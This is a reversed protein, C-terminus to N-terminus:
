ALAARGRVGGFYKQIWPHSHHIIEDREGVIAKKDVIVAFRDCITLLSDMDHSIMVVTLNLHERLYLILEDFEAASIPDLGATPEDLFIIKPEVALARALAARKIMGGSLESPYKNFATESLGVMRLKLRAIEEILENSAQAQERIPAMANELVTLGSFLAGTQFLVGWRMQCFSDECSIDQDFLTVQGSTPQRLGLMCNLLVSKGTGSGGVIGLIEHQYVSLNIGDHVLHHGFRNVLHNIRIIEKKSSNPM